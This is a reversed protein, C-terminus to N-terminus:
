FSLGQFILKLKKVYKDVSYVKQKKLTNYKLKKFLKDNTWIRIIKDSISKLCHPNFYLACDGCQKRSEFIDSILIPCNNLIAEIPPINRPGFFTPMILSRAKKYLYNKENEAIYGFFLINKNLKLKNVLKRIKSYNKDNFGCLILKIDPIKISAVKIAEVLKEHNKHPWFQAPYFIYKKPLNKIKKKIKKKLVFFDFPFIKKKDFQYNDLFQNKGYLSDVLIINSDRAILKYRLNRVKKKLFSSTESFHSYLHMLDHVCVIKKGEFLAGFYDQSPMIWISHENDLKKITHFFFIKKYLKILEILNCSIFLFLMLRQFFNIKLFVHNLEPFQNSWGKKTHIINIQGISFNKKILIILNQTYQFTGGWKEDNDIFVNVTLQNKKVNSRM